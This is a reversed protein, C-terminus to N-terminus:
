TCTKPNTLQAFAQSHFIVHKLVWYRIEIHTLTNLKYEPIFSSFRNQTVHIYMRIVAYVHICPREVSGSGRRQVRRNM